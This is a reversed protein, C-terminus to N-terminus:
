RDRSWEIRRHRHRRRHHRWLQEVYREVIVQHWQSDSVVKDSTLTLPGSGLDYKFQVRDNIIELSM